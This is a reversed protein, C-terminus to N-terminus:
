NDFYQRYAEVVVSRQQQQEASSLPKANGRRREWSPQTERISAVADSGEPNDFEYSRYEANDWGTGRTLDMGEWDQTLFHLFGGHTVVVVHADGGAGKGGAVWRRGMDRLWVRTRRAREELAEIRPAWPSDASTKDNWGHEVLGFDAWTGFEAALVAPESGTDCPLRSIEQVLPLALVKGAGGGAAAAPSQQFALHCTLLTRRMPSAVLHTIAAHHPFAAGLAACQDAGTPTLYPDPIQQNITTLNHFGQAHRVLHITITM